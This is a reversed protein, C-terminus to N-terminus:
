VPSDERRTSLSVVTGESGTAIAVEDVLLSMLPLGRGQEPWPDREAGALLKFSGGDHVTCVLEDDEATARLYIVGAPLPAGHRIANSVAENAATTARYRGREDLGFEAAAAVFFRRATRLEAPASLALERKFLVEESSGGLM